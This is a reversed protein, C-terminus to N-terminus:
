DKTIYFRTYHFDRRFCFSLEYLSHVKRKQFRHIVNLRILYIYYFMVHIGSQLPIMSDFSLQTDNEIFHFVINSSKPNPKFWCSRWAIFFISSFLYICTEDLALSHTFSYEGNHKTRCFISLITAILYMIKFVSLLCTSCCM